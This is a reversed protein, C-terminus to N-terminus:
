FLLYFVSVSLLYFAIGAFMVPLMAVGFWSGPEDARIDRWWLTAAVGIAVLIVLALVIVMVLATARRSQYGDALMRMLFAFFPWGGAAVCAVSGFISESLSRILHTRERRTMQLVFGIIVLVTVLVVVVAAWSLLRREREGFASPTLLSHLQMAAFVLSILGAIGAVIRGIWEVVLDGGAANSTKFPWWAIFLALLVVGAALSWVVAGLGPLLLTCAFSGLLMVLYFAFQVGAVKGTLAKQMTKMVRYWLSTSSTKDRRNVRVKGEVM